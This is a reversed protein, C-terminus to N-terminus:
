ESDKRQAAELAAQMHILLNKKYPKTIYDTFGHEMAEKKDAEAANATVAIIPCTIGRKRLEITAQIGDMEPMIIDMIIISFRDPSSMVADVAIRGNEAIEVVYDRGLLKSAIKQCLENDEAVLCVPKEEIIDLEPVDDNNSFYGGRRVSSPRGSELSSPPTLLSETSFSRPTGVDILAPSDSGAALEQTSAISRQDDNKVIGSMTSQNSTVSWAQSSESPNSHVISVRPLIAETEYLNYEVENSIALPLNIIVTTGENVRSDINITGGLLDVLHHSISLGLGSSDFHNGISINARSFPMFVERLQEASIGSGTDTFKFQVDAMSPCESGDTTASVEMSIVGKETFKVSNDLVNEIIQRLRYGDSNVFNPVNDDVRIEPVVAGDSKESLMRTAHRGEEEILDRLHFPKFSLRLEHQSLQAIDLVDNVISQMHGCSTQINKLYDLQDEEFLMESLMDSMGSVVHLPNRLEHCVFALFQSKKQNADEADLKAQHLQQAAEKKSTIDRMLVVQTMFPRGEDDNNIDEMYSFNAEAIFGDESDKRKVLVEHLGPKVVNNEFIPSQESDIFMQKLHIGILRKKNAFSFLALAQKNCDVVRGEGNLIVLPDPVAQLVAQARHKSRNYNYRQLNAERNALRYYQTGAFLGLSFLLGIILVVTITTAPVSSAEYHNGCIITWTENLINFDVQQYKLSEHEVNQTKYAIGGNEDRIEFSDLNDKVGRLAIAITRVSNFCGTVAGEFNTDSETFNYYTPYYACFGTENTGALRLLPTITVERKSLAM